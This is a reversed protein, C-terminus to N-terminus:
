NDFLKLLDEDFLKRANSPLLVMKNETDDIIYYDEGSVYLYVCYSMWRIKTSRLRLTFMSDPDVPTTCKNNDDNVADLFIKSEDADFEQLTNNNMDCVLVSDAEFYALDPLKLEKPNYYLLLGDNHSTALLTSTSILQEKGSESLFGLQYYERDGDTAYPKNSIRVPEYGRPAAVYTIDNKKDLLEGTSYDFSFKRVHHYNGIFDSLVFIGIILLIAGAIIVWPLISIKEKEKVAAGQQVSIKKVKKKSM